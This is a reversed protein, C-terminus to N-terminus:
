KVPKISYIWAYDNYEVAFFLDRYEDMYLYVRCKTGTIDYAYWYSGKTTEFDNSEGEIYYVQKVKSDVTIKTDEILIVVQPISQFEPFDFKDTYKNKEGFSIKNSTAVSIEQSFTFLTCIVFIFTILIKRM